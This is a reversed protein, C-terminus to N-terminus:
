TMIERLLMPSGGKPTSPGIRSRPGGVLDPDVRRTRTGGPGAALRVAGPAQRHGPGAQRRGPGPRRRDVTGVEGQGQGQVAELQGRDSGLEHHEERYPTM